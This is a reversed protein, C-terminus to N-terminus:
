SGLPAETYNKPFRKRYRIEDKIAGYEGIVHSTIKKFVPGEDIEKKKRAIEDNSWGKYDELIFRNFLYVGAYISLSIGVGKALSDFDYM